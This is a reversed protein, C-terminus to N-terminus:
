ANSSSGSREAEPVFLMLAAGVVFFVVITAMGVRQSDAAVTVWGVLLPGLFATAKGSLAFLGFMQTRLEEPATRSLWSRSAAQVPGVFIGLTMGAIWFSLQTEVILIATSGLILGALSVLITARSGVKDDMWAFGFAGLGATVNLAIGFLLVQQASMGFTGAAYVGGFAFATALGDAYIMRAIFFRLIPAYRRVDKISDRLQAVGNRLALRWTIRQGGRDPTMFFMPLAFVLFWAATLVFTARVHEAEARQLSFWANEDVFGFLAIVLCSMGGAYGLGWGWGSWRGIEEERALDPLMANYFIFACEAGVIGIAVLTLALAVDDAQPRVFWLLATAVVSVITFMVVWPKRRGGQDALAGILPGAIAIVLGTAATVNGWLATGLSSDGVVSQTFYAAFVFTLILASFASNAWDYFAWALLARRDTRASGPEAIPRESAITTM